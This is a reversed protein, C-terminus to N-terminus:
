PVGGAQDPRRHGAASRAVRRSAAVLVLWSPLIRALLRPVAASQRCAREAASRSAPSLWSRARRLEIRRDPPFSACRNDANARAWRPTARRPRSRHRWRQGSCAGCDAAYGPERPQDGRQGPAEALQLPAQQLRVAKAHTSVAQRFTGRAAPRYQVFGCPVPSHQVTGSPEYGLPRLNM